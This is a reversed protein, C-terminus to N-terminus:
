LIIIGNLGKLHIRKQREYNKFFQEDDDDPVQSVHADENVDWSRWIATYVKEAKEDKRKEEDDSVDEYDEDDDEEDDDEDDDEEDDDEGDFKPSQTVVARRKKKPPSEPEFETEPTKDFRKNKCEQSPQQQKVPSQVDKDFKRKMGKVVIETDNEAEYIQLL